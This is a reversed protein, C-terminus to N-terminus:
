EKMEGFAAMRVAQLTEIKAKEEYVEDISSQEFLEVKRSEHTEICEDLYELLQEETMKLKLM